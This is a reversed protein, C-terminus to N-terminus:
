LANAQGMFFGPKFIYIFLFLLAPFLVYKLYKNNEEFKIAENFNIPILEQARQNISAKLLDDGIVVHQLQITNLLKDNINKFYQGIQEAAKENSLQRDIFILRLAPNLVWYLFSAFASGIFIFFLIARLVGNFRGFYELINISIYTSLVIAFTLILGKLLLNSYYKTKYAKIKNYLENNSRIM